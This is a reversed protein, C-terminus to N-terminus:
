FLKGQPDLPMAQKLARARELIALARSELDRVARTLEDPTRAVYYGGGATTCIPRGFHVVLDSCIQRFERDSLKPIHFHNYHEIIEARPAAHEVGVHHAVLWDWVAHQEDTMLALDPPM